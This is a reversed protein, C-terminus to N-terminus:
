ETALTTFATSPRPWRSAPFVVWSVWIPCRGGGGCRTSCRGPLAWSLDPASACSLGLVNAATFVTFALRFLAVVALYLAAIVALDLKDVRTQPRGRRRVAPRALVALLLASAPIVLGYIALDMVALSLMAALLWSAWMWNLRNQTGAIKM